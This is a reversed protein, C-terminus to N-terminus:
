SESVFFVIKTMFDGRPFVKHCITTQNITSAIVQRQKRYGQELM